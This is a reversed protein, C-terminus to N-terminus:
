EEEQALNWYFDEHGKYNKCMEKWAHKAYRRSHFTVTSLGCMPCKVRWAAHFPYPDNDTYADPDIQHWTEILGNGCEPCRTKPWQAKQKVEFTYIKKM